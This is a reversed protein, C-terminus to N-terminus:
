IILARESKKNLVLALVHKYIAIGVGTLWATNRIFIMPIANISCLWGEKEAIFKLFELNLFFLVAASFLFLAIGMKWFSLIISCYLLSSFALQAFIKSNSWTNKKVVARANLAYLKVVSEAWSMQQFYYSRVSSRFNHLVGNDRDWYIKCIKSLEIAFEM